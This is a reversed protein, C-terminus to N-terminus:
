RYLQRLNLDYNVLYDLNVPNRSFENTSTSSGQQPLPTISTAGRENTNRLASALSNRSYANEERPPLLRAILSYDRDSPTYGRLSQNGIGFILQRGMPGEPSPAEMSPYLDQPLNAPNYM